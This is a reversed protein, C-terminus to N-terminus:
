ARTIPGWSQTEDFYQLWEQRGDDWFIYARRAEDWEPQRAPPGTTAEGTQDGAAGTPASDGSGVSTTILADPQPEETTAPESTARPTSSPQSAPPQPTSAPWPNM